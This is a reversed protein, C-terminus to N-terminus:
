AHPPGGMRHPRGRRRSPRGSIDDVLHVLTERLWRHGPDTENRATWVMTERVPELRIPPELLRLEVEGAVLLGLKEHILSMLRTGRLLFPALTMSTTLEVNRGVGLADLQMEALSPLGGVRTALYPLASFEEETISEGVDPNDIAVACVYRDTFLPAHHHKGYDPMAGAPVILLDVDNAAIREAFDAGLPQIHLRVGPADETLRVLMEHLLILTVYDSAMITFQRSDRAPDFEQTRRELLAVVSALTERVPGALEEAFPTAVFERGQRVLIPDGFLKRIRGLTASMASQGVSLRAAARTVNREAMLADFAVLLNLDVRSM